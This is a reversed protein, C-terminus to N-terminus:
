RGYNDLLKNNISDSNIENLKIENLEYEYKDLITNINNKFDNLAELYLVTVLLLFSEFILSQFIIVMKKYDEKVIFFYMFSLLLIGAIIVLGTILNELINM